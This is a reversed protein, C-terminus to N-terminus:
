DLDISKKGVREHFHLHHGVRDYRCWVLGSVRYWNLVIIPNRIEDNPESNTHIGFAARLLASCENFIKWTYDIFTGRTKRIPVHNRRPVEARTKM